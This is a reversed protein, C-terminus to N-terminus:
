EYKLVCPLDHEISYGIKDKDEVEDWFKFMEEKDDFETLEVNEIIEFDLIKKSEEDLDYFYYDWNKSECMLLTDFKEEPLDEPNSVFYIKKYLTKNKIM